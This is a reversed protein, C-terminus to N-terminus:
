LLSAPLQQGVDLASPARGAVSARVAGGPSAVVFAAAEVDAHGARARDFFEGATDRITATDGTGLAARVDSMTALLASATALHENRSQLSADVTGLSALVEKEVGAHLAESAQYLFFWGAAAVLTTVAVVTELYIKALLSIRLKM